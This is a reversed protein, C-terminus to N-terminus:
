SSLVFVPRPMQASLSFLHASDARPCTSATDTIASDTEAILNLRRLPLVVIRLSILCFL